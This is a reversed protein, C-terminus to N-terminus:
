ATQWQDSLHHGLQPMVINKDWNDSRYGNVYRRIPENRAPGLEVGADLLRLLSSIAERDIEENPSERHREVATRLALWDNIRGQDASGVHDAHAMVAGEMARAAYDAAGNFRIAELDHIAIKEVRWSVDIGPGIDHLLKGTENLSYFRHHLSRLVDWKTRLGRAQNYGYSGHVISVWAAKAGENVNLLLRISPVKKWVTGDIFVLSNVIEQVIKRHEHANDGLLKDNPEYKPEPRRRGLLGELGHYELAGCGRICRGIETLGHCATSYDYIAEYCWVEDHRVDLTKAIIEAPIKDEM